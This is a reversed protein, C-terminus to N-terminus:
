TETKSTRQFRRELESTGLRLMTPRGHPCTFPFETAFLQDTLSEMEEAALRTGAKIAAHCAFSKLLADLDHSEDSLIRQLLQGDNWNRVGAPIGHVIISRSGFPEADFGLSPLVDQLEEFREHEDPTLELTAPFLLPQVVRQADEVSRKAADFLIREHAAHQDVIVMGGRIQILIFSDHLQWYLGGSEVIHHEPSEEFLSMPTEKFFWELQEGRGGPMEEGPVSSTEGHGGRGPFISQYVSQVRDRFSQERAGLAARVSSQVLRHVEREDRFRIEAKAPHVNVDIAEPPVRLFLAFVPFKDRPILSHYAQHVAHSLLRDRIIRGNVFYFQLTRNGRTMDPRSLFGSVSLQGSEDEFYVLHEFISAGFVAGVRQDIESAPYAFLERGEDAMSFAVSPFALAFSQVLSHMRRLEAAPSSLFKRRAPLNYFLEEVSIDTGMTRAVPVDRLLENTRWEMERGADERGSRTSIRLRSVARISALAEGRFGLTSLRTMDEITSIKSTSHSEVALPLQTSPIGSGDDSVRISSKGGGGIEVRIKSAGADLSNEILEKCVSAPREIVEGAAIRSSVEHSLRRIPVAYEEM